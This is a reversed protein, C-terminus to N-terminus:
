LSHPIALFVSPLQGSPIQTLSPQKRETVYICEHLAKIFGQLLVLSQTFTVAIFFFM